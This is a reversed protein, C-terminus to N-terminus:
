SGDSRNSSVYIVGILAVKEISCILEQIHNVNSDRTMSLQVFIKRFLKEDEVM